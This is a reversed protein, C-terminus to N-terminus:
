FPDSNPSLLSHLFYSSHYGALSFRLFYFVFVGLDDVRDRFRQHSFQADSSFLCVSYFVFCLGILLHLLLHSGEYFNLVKFHMVPLIRRSEPHQALILFRAHHSRTFLISSLQNAFIVFFIAFSFGFVGV